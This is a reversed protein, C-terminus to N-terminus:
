PAACAYRQLVCAVPPSPAATLFVVICPVGSKVTALVLPRAVLTQTHWPSGDPRVYTTLATGVVPVRRQM